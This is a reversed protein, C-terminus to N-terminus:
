FVDGTVEAKLRKRFAEVHRLARLLTEKEQRSLTKPDVFRTVPANSKFAEIQRKLLIKTLFNFSFVLYEQETDSVKRAKHLREVRELTGTSEIGSKLSLLRVAEVLPLTARYKVDFLGANDGTEELGLRGFINIGVTHDAQLSYMEQLFFHNKKVADVLTYRLEDALSTQGYVPQFDFFIDALRLAISNRKKGWLGVQQRWQSISKRWLPNTAMVYGTCYPFGVEDLDRCMRSALERFYEDVKNHDEDPYDQLIFGNDQDPFLYNEGRGASGMVIACFDVPPRGWGEAEMHCVNDHIIRSYIDKNIHTLLQQVISAPQHDEFMDHALDVQAAKVGRLSEVDGEGSLRDIQQMLDTAAIEVADQLYVMGVPKMATDVVVLESVGYRRMRGIAHYLYEDARMTQVRDDMVSDILAQPAVKFVVKSLIDQQRLIGALKGHGDVVVCAKAGTEVMRSIATECFTGVEVCVKATHMFDIVRKAFIKTQKHM